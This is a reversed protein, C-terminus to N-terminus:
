RIITASRIGQYIRVGVTRCILHFSLSIMHFNWSKKSRVTRCTQFNNNNNKRGKNLHGFTDSHCFNDSRVFTDSKGFTERHGFTDHHGFSDCHVFTGSHGFTDSHNFTDGHGFPGFTYSQGRNKTGVIFDIIM